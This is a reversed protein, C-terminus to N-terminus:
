YNIYDRWKNLQIILLKDKDINDKLYLYMSSIVYIFIIKFLLNSDYAQSWKKNSRRSCNLKNRSYYIIM